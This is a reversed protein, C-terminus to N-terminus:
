FLAEVGAGLHDALTASSAAVLVAAGVLLAGLVLPARRWSLADGLLYDAGYAALTWLGAALLALPARWGLLHFSASFVLFGFLNLLDRAYGLWWPPAGAPLGREVRRLSSLGASYALGALALAAGGLGPAETM